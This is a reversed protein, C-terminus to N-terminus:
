RKYAKLIKIGNNMRVLHYDLWFIIKWLIGRNPTLGVVFKIELLYKTILKELNNGSVYNIITFIKM